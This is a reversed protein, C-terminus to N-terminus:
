TMVINTHSRSSCIATHSNITLHASAASRLGAIKVIKINNQGYNPTQLCNRAEQRSFSKIKSKAKLFSVRALLLSFHFCYTINEISTVRIATVKTFTM